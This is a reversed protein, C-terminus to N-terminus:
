SNFDIKAFKSLGPAHQKKFLGYEVKKNSDIRDFELETVKKFKKLYLPFFFSKLFTIQNRM